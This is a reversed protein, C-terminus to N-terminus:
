RGLADAGIIVVADLENHVAGPEVRGFGLADVIEKGKPFDDPRVTVITERFDFRGADGVQLVTFGAERLEGTWLTAQGTTGNGNLVQLVMPGGAEQGTVAGAGPERFSRYVEEAAPQDAVLYYVGDEIIEDVPLVVVEIDERGFSRAESLLEIMRINSLRSDIRIHRELAGLVGLMRNVDFVSLQKFATLMAFLLSQQRSIRGFDSAEVAVWVGDRNEEYQRSRAYALAARGDLHRLGAEVDLFSKLDRAPYPFTIDVGGLEDVIAAFGAFDLEIYYDLDIGTVNQVTDYLLQPNPGSISYAANLKHPSGGIEVRLDRPLSLVHILGEELTVIMIVDARYGIVQDRIGLEQPLDQRSDSGMVLFTLRELDPESAITDSPGDPPVEEVAGSPGDGSAAALSTVPAAPSDPDVIDVRQFRPFNFALIGALVVLNVLILGIILRIWRRRVTM